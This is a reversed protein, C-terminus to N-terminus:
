CARKALERTGEREACHCGLRVSWDRARTSYFFTAAARWTAPQRISHRFVFLALRVNVLEQKLLDIGDRM